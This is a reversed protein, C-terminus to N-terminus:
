LTVQLALTRSNNDERLEPQSQYPDAYAGLFYSGGQGMADQPLHATVNLSQTICDGPNLAIVNAGGLERQDMNASSGPGPMSPEPALSTDVSLYLSVWGPSSAQTGQNCVRVTSTLTNGVLISVPGTLSTIVLDPRTGVGILGKVFTNNDERLEQVGGSSDVLAGLYYATGEGAPPAYANVSASRTVCQAALLAPVDVSGIAVQDLAPPSVSLSLADDLSLVLQASTSTSSQTGQNCVTVTATFAQGQTVSTPSTMATIVLDSRSGVGIFGKVFTNNDERLEQVSAPDDVLAGVYYAGDGQADPPLWATASASRTACQGVALSPISVNAVESQDAAPSGPASMSTLAADMSLFLRAATSNSLVTGRNCVTVGLTFPQNISASTPATMATIVLDPRNGIGIPGKVFSNNDERLEQVSSPDDVLAGLYYAGDGQADPPLGAWGTTSRTACQGPNLSPVSVGGVPSQDTAPSGGPGYPMPTLVTDMSVYIQAQTSTSAQTGQNCVTVAATFSQGNQLAQPVNLGTVVLDPRNGVGILGKVFANNDERLEQVSSPDDVIAGLYYAGDGAGDPPPSGYFSGSRTLCVGANLSPVSLSGLPVQDSPPGGPGSSLPTLSTDTSLYLQAQTSPSSQLGQNCFTVTTTFNQGSTISAPGTMATIVLDARNGVGVLGKVFANNDERLELVSGQEDVIAGVYYAGEGQGDMPYNVWASTSRTACQGASLPPVSVMGLPAQDTPPSGGPGVMMPTLSTDMSLYLQAQTANSSLTGQNCVTATATFSQGPSLTPPVSLETVVLDPRNGLGVLGNVFINNDERLEQVFGSEDVIAALYFATANTPIPPLSPWFSDGRTVCQGPNLSPIQLGGLPSQDNAPPGMPNMPTLVADLSLYLNTWSSNSMTTGQNCVTVSVATAQGTNMSAQSTMATVVLDPRSGVGIREKAYSNNDERLEQVSSPDDVIAGLFYAGAGQGAPPLWAQAAVTRTVCQGPNLLPLQMSGVPSQDMAPAGPGTPTLVDDTSLFLRASHGPAYTTGQNCVRVQVDFGQNDLVSAPGRLETIILDPKNGVGIREKAYANNDERLEQVSAPDDVIAGLYYAGDGQGAPPLSAWVSVSRRVCAGANLPMQTQVEGIPSQDLAPAGPGTPTLVNDTSLFLQTRVSPVSATGQNCVTVAVTFYGGQPVSPPSSLETIVLDPRNGVGIRTQANANNNENVEAVSQNTDVIAGLFYAGDGQAAPPLWSTGTVRVDACQGAELTEHLTEQGVLSQDAPPPTTTLPSLVNDLSLLVAVTSGRNAYTTGQNCVTVTTTFSDAAFVSAPGRVGTVVLDPGPNLPSSATELTPQEQAPEGGSCGASVGVFLGM